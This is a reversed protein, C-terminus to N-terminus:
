DRITVAPPQFRIIVGWLRFKTIRQGAGNVLYDGTPRGTHWTWAGLHGEVEAVVGSDETPRRTRSVIVEGVYPENARGDLYVAFIDENQMLPVTVSQFQTSELTEADIVRAEVAVPAQRTVIPEARRWAEIRQEQTTHGALNLLIDVPFHLARAFRSCMQPTPVVKGSEIRSIFAAGPSGGMLRSLGSQSLGMAERRQAILVGVHRPRQSQSMDDRRTLGGVSHMQM